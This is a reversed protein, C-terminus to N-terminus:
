LLYTYIQMYIWVHPTHITKNCKRGNNSQTSWRHFRGPDLEQLCEPEPLQQLVGGTSKSKTCTRQLPVLSLQFLVVPGTYLFVIIFFFFFFSRDKVWNRARKILLIHKFTVFVCGLMKQGATKILLKYVLWCTECFYTIKGAAKKNNNNNNNSM